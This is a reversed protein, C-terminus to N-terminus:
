LKLILVRDGREFKDRVRITIESDKVNEVVGEVADPVSEFIREYKEFTEILERGLDTLRTEGGEIGGRKSIVIKEGLVREMRRVYNWVFRYSMGLEKSAKSISGCREISKLIEYGGRGIVHRGDKEIWFKLCIRM